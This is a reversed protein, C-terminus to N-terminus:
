RQKLFYAIIPAYLTLGLFITVAHVASFLPYSRLQSPRSLRKPVTEDALAYLSVVDPSTDTRTEFAAQSARLSTELLPNVRTKFPTLPSCLTVTHTILEPYRTLLQIQWRGARASASSTINAQCHHSLNAIVETSKSTSHRIPMMGALPTSM